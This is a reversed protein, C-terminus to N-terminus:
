FANLVITIYFYTLLTYFAYFNLPNHAKVSYGIMKGRMGFIPLKPGSNPLNSISTLFYIM